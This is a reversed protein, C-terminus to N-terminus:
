AVVRRDNGEVPDKQLRRLGIFQLEAFLAVIVAQFIIFAYGLASPDVWGTFLLVISDVAWLANAIIIAWISGRTASTGAGVYAVFASYIVLFLGAYRLLDAPLVLLNALVGFGFFILLGTAGSALADALLARRLFPSLRVQHVANGTQNNMQTNM